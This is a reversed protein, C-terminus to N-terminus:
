NTRANQVGTVHFLRVWVFGMLLSLGISVSAHLVGGFWEIVPRNSRWESFPLVRQETTGLCSAMANIEQASMSKVEELTPTAECPGTAYSTVVGHEYQYGAFPFHLLLILLIAFISVFAGARQLLSWHNPKFLATFIM